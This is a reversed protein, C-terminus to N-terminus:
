GTTSPTSPAAGVLVVVRARARVTGAVNAGRATAVNDANVIRTTARARAILQFANTKGPALTPIRWCVRSSGIRHAGPASVLQLAAPVTDCVLVNKAALGANAGVVITFRVVDGRYLTSRSKRKVLTLTARARAIRAAAVSSDDVADPDATIATAAGVNELAGSELAVLEVTVVAAAGANLTGLHCVIPLADNCTGVSPTASVFRTLKSPTDTYVVDEAAAAGVNRVTVHYTLTDGIGATPPTVTKTVSLDAAAGGSASGTARITVTTHAEQGCADLVRYTLHETASSGPAPTYVLKRSAPDWAAVGHQAGSVIVSSPDFSGEDNGLIPIEVPNGVTYSATDPNLVPHVAYGDTASSEEPTSANDSSDVSAANVYTCSVHEPFRVPVTIPPLEIGAAIPSAHAHTCTVTVGDASTLCAWGDGTAGGDVTGSPLTDTVVIPARVKAGAEGHVSVKLEFAGSGGPAFVGTHSKAVRLEPLPEVSDVELFRIEHVDTLHGTSAAFGFRVTDPRAAPVPEDLDPPESEARDWWVRIQPKSSDLPDIELHVTHEVGADGRSHAYVSAVSAVSATQELCYGDLWAGSGNRKGPGRLSIRNPYLGHEDIATGGCGHGRGENDNAYNGFEDFGVGLFGGPLGPVNETVGSESGEIKQAYGLSGGFAGVRDVAVGGDQLFFSIGDAGRLEPKTGYYAYTKFTVNLGADLPLPDRYLVFGARDNGNDTLRLAGQGAADPANGIGDQPLLCGPLPAQNRDGSATLCPSHPTPNSIFGTDGGVEYDGSVSPQAFTDRVLVTGGTPQAHAVSVIGICVIALVPSGCISMRVLKTADM